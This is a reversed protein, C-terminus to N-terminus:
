GRPIMAALKAPDNEEAEAQPAAGSRLSETPRARNDGNAAGNAGKDGGAPTGAKEDTPKVFKVLEDADAELEERTAGVLRRSMAPTLGKAAAVELRLQNAEGEAIKRELAAIRDSDTKSKEDADRAKALLAKAEPLDDKSLGTSKWLGEHQRALAKWKEVEAQPDEGGKDTDAGTGATKKSDADETGKDTAPDKTKTTV